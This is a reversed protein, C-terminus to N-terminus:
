GKRIAMYMFYIAIDDLLCSVSSEFDTVAPEHNWRIVKDAQLLVTQPINLGLAKATKLNISRRPVHPPAL